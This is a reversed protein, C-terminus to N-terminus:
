YQVLRYNNPGVVEPTQDANFNRRSWGRVEKELYTRLEGVSVSNDADGDAGGSLGQLLHYTMLSMGKESDMRAIEKARTASIFITDAPIAVPAVEAFVPKGVVLPASNKATGSFCADLIVTTKKAGLSALQTLLTDRSYGTIDAIEPRTDSPLLLAKGNKPMGHGSFYFFVRTQGPVVRNPLTRLFLGEMEGKTADKKVIINEPAVGLGNQLFSSVATADNYAYHVKPIDQGYSRNGIIVAVMDDANARARQFKWSYKAVLGEYDSGVTGGLNALKQQQKRIAQEIRKKEHERQKEAHALRIKRENEAQQQRLKALAPDDQVNIAETYYEDEIDIKTRVKRIPSIDTNGALQVEATASMEVPTFVTDSFTLRYLRGNHIVSPVEKVQGNATISYQMKPILGAVDRKFNRAADAALPVAITVPENFLARKSRMRGSFKEEESDYVLEVLELKGVIEEVAENLFAERMQSRQALRQKKEQQVKANFEEVAHNFEEVAAIYRNEIGQLERRRAEKAAQVRKEFAARKEFEGKILQPLPSPKEKTPPKKNFSYTSDANLWSQYKKEALESAALLPENVRGSLEQFPAFDAFRTQEKKMVKQAVKFDGKEMLQIVYNYTAVGSVPCKQYVKQWDIKALPDDGSKLSGETGLFDFGTVRCDAQLSKQIQVENAAATAPAVARSSWGGSQQATQQCGPLILALPLLTTILSKRINM